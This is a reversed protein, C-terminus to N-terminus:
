GPVVISPPGPCPRPVEKETRVVDSSCAAQFKQRVEFLVAFTGPNENNAPSRAARAGFHNRYELAAWNPM